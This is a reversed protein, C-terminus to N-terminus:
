HWNLRVKVGVVAPLRAVVTMKVSLAGESPLVCTSMTLPVPVPAAGGGVTIGGGVEATGGVGVRGSGGGGGGDAGGVAGDGVAGGGGSTVAVAPMGPRGFVPVPARCPPSTASPGSASSTAVM